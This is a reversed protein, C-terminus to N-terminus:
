RIGMLETLPVIFPMAAGRGSAFSSLSHIDWVEQDFKRGMMRVVRFVWYRSHRPIGPYKKAILWEKSYVVPKGIVSLLKGTYREGEMHLLIYQVSKEEGGEDWAGRDTGMRLNYLGKELIWDLHEPGNYFAVLVNSVTTEANLDPDDAELRDVVEEVDTSNYDKLLDFGPRLKRVPIFYYLGGATDECEAQRALDVLSKRDIMRLSKEVPKDKKRRFVAIVAPRGEEEELRSLREVEAAALRFCLKAGKGYFTHCKVEVELNGYTRILFDAKRDTTRSRQTYSQFAYEERSLDALMLRRAGALKAFIVKARLRVPEGGPCLQRFGSAIGTQWPPNDSAGEVIISKENIGEVAALDEMREVYAYRVPFLEPDTIVHYGM